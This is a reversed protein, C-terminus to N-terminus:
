PAKGTDPPTAVLLRKPVKGVPIRAVVKRAEADVAVV